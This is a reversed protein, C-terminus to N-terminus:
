PAIDDATKSERSGLEPGRQTFFIGKEKLSRPVPVWDLRSLCM